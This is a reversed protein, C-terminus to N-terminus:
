IRWLLWPHIVHSRLSRFVECSQSANKQKEIYLHTRDDYRQTKDNFCVARAKRRSVCTHEHACAQACALPTGEPGWCRPVVESTVVTASSIPIHPPFISLPPLSHHPTPPLNSSLHSLCPLPFSHRVCAVRWPARRSLLGLSKNNGRSHLFASEWDPLEEIKTVVVCLNTGLNSNRRHLFLCPSLHRTSHNPFVDEGREQEGKMSPTLICKM